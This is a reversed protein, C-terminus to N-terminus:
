FRTDDVSDLYRRIDGVVSAICGDEFPSRLRALKVLDLFSKSGGAQCLRLYDNWADRHNQRDKTWFQFACIQALTYDIYYFPSNFIHNQKQWFGGNELFVNGDYDRQPLYTKELRRWAANREAPTMGPNEYIIHQFEDVAVGYPLFQLASCFHMFYYKETDPGFFLHMWPWTFFEMSMSHIEAADSTPWHYEEFEFNSSSWVQFAHGAEHTLVDIDGSTGNFNSFIFPAKFKPLYTCYGGTAKGDHNVLDMLKADLLRRFFRDTDASLEQYMRRANALIDDPTGIPKPNGTPFKYEEDYYKLKGLGLRRRQREYLEGALPVILERVQRRFNAVMEPTYDSRRMRAYGVEVFNKYGLARAIKHRVRVMGDFINEVVPANGAYFNWKAETARRRLDRDNSLELPMLSSLNYTQGEFEILAQAKIKTYETGLSNEQQLDELIESRFTKLALEALVFLQTGLRKELEPRFPSDLLARYFRNNLEEYAPLNEDFYANEAEYFPDATNVTHRIYCLNYMTGFEERVENLSQIAACQAEVTQAKEFAGLHRDFATTVSALDPREYPYAEFTDASPLIATM